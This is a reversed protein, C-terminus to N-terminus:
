IVFLFHALKHTKQTYKYIFDFFLPKVWQNKM